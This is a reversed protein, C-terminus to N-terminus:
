LPHSHVVMLPIMPYARAQYPVIKYLADQYFEELPLTLNPHRQAITRTWTRITHFNGFSVLTDIGPSEAFLVSFSHEWPQSGSAYARSEVGHYQRFPTIQRLNEVTKGERLAQLAIQNEWEKLRPFIRMSDAYGEIGTRLSPLPQVERIGPRRISETMLPKLTTFVVPTLLM